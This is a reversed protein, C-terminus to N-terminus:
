GIGAPRKYLILFHHIGDKKRINWGPIKLDNNRNTEKEHGETKKKKSKLIDDTQYLIILSIM